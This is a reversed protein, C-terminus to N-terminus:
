PNKNLSKSRMKKPNPIKQITVTDGNREYILGLFTIKQKKNKDTYLARRVEEINGLTIDKSSKLVQTFLNKLFRRQLAISFALFDKRHFTYTHAEKKYSYSPGKILNLLSADDSFIEASQSLRHIIDPQIAREILPLIKHRIINRTYVLDKNSSDERFPLSNEQLYNLIENRSLSLLPRIIHGQKPSMGQMGNVGCGRFLHLLLTEAQDNKQHGVAISTYHLRKRLEEFRKYRVDRLINESKKQPLRPKYTILPINLRKCFSRTLIEDSESEKGRLRYNIHVALLSINKKPPIRSLLHLLCISDPGGSIAVLIKDNQKWLKHFHAWNQVRKFPDTSTRRSSEKSKRM